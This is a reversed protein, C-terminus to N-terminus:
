RAYDAVNPMAKVVPLQIQLIRSLDEDQSRAYLPSSLTVPRVGQVVRIISDVQFYVHEVLRLRGRRDEEWQVTHSQWRGLMNALSCVGLVNEPCPRCRHSTAVSRRPNPTFGVTVLLMGKKTIERM